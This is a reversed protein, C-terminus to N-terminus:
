MIKHLKKNLTNRHLGLLQAAKNRNGRSKDLAYDFLSKEIQPLLMRYLNGALMDPSHQIYSSLKSNLFFELREFAEADGAGQRKLSPLHESRIYNGRCNSLAIQLTGKLEKLNGPWEHALLIEMAEPSCEKRTVKMEASLLELFHNAYLPIDERRDRLPPIYLPLFNWDYYLDPAISGSELEQQFTHDACLIFRLNHSRLEGSHSCKFQKRQHISLLQYQSLVSMSTYDTIYCTGEPPHPEEIGLFQEDSRETVDSGRILYFPSGARHSFFHLARAVHGKGSGPEGLLLVPCDLNCVRGIMKYLQHMQHSKGTLTLSDITLSVTMM